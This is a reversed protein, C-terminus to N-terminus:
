AVAYVRAYHEVVKTCEEREREVASLRGDVVPVTCNLADHIDRYLEELTARLFDRETACRARRTM